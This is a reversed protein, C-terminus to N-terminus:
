SLLKKLRGLPALVRHFPLMREYVLPDLAEHEMVACTEVIKTLELVAIGRAGSFLHDYRVEKMEEATAEVWCQRPNRWKKERAVWKMYGVTVAERPMGYRLFLRELYESSFQIYWGGDLLKGFPVTILAKGGMELLEYLRVIAKLPAELDSRVSTEGFGGTPDSGQGVHEVTSISIISQFREEAPQMDMIDCNDIGDGQEFKDVIRRPPLTGTEYYQLVNGVELLSGSQRQLFELAIPIEIAREARNNFPIRNYFLQKGQFYFHPEWTGPSWEQLRVRDGSTSSYTKVV